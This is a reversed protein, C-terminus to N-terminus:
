VKKIRVRMGRPIRLVIKNKTRQDSVQRVKVKGGSRVKQRVYNGGNKLINEKTSLKENKSDEM